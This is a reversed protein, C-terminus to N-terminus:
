QTYSGFFDDEVLSKQKEPDFKFYDSKPFKVVVNM